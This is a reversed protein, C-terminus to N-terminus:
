RRPTHCRMCETEGIAVIFGCECNYSPFAGDSQVGQQAADIRAEAEYICDQCWHDEWYLYLLRVKKCKPCKYPGHAKM